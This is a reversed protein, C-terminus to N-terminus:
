KGGLIGALRELGEPVEKIEEGKLGAQFLGSDMPLTGVLRASDLEKRMAEEVERDAKNLFLYVPKGLGEGMEVIKKSLAISEYSPDLVVLIIDSGKEVGRGLHEIGAETDVIVIEGPGLTLSELLQRALSGMPCACGEGFEHIKGVALLSIGDKQSLYDVPIEDISWGSPFLTKDDRMRQFLGKKGDFFKLLDPPLELGLHRHLGYNSEDTDVVLVKHGREAMMKAMLAAVTSKGSGGKGCVIIKM